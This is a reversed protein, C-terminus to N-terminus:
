AKVVESIKEMLRVKNIPKSLYGDCGSELIRNEDGLMAYATIAIVPVIPNILKIRKTAEFGDVEPMKMDMLVLDIGPNKSFIEIAERGNAAHIIEASTNMNLLTKLYLFNIEDDEAVLISSLQKFDKASAFTQDVKKDQQNDILPLYFYFKSGVGKESEVKLEGGLLDVLDKAISLGLGSGESPRTKIEEKVFHDFITNLSGQGIGIGTDRVYFELLNNRKAFGFHINGKETFKVANDLLHNFIKQILEPDSNIFPKDSLESLDLVLELNKTSCFPEYKKLFDRLYSEPSFDIKNVTM